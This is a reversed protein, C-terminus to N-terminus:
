SNFLFMAMDSQPLERFRYARNASCRRSNGITKLWIRGSPRVSLM